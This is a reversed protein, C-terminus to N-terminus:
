KYKKQLVSKNRVINYNQAYAEAGKLSVFGKM